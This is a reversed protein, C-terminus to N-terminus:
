GNLHLGLADCKIPLLIPRPQLSSSEVGARGSVQQSVMIVTVLMGGGGGWEAWPEGAGVAGAGQLM